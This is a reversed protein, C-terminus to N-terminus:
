ASAFARVAPSTGGSTYQLSSATNASALRNRLAPSVILVFDFAFFRLFWHWLRALPWRATRAMVPSDAFKVPWIDYGSRRAYRRFSFASNFNHDSVCFDSGRRFAKEAVLRRWRNPLAAILPLGYIPDRRITKLTVGTEVLAIGGPKLVRRIEAFFADLDEVFELVEMTMVVDFTGDAFPWRTMGDCRVFRLRQRADLQAPLQAYAFDFKDTGVCDAGRAWLAVLDGAHATGIELVRKGALPGIIQELEDAIKLGREFVQRVWRRTGSQQTAADLARHFRRRVEGIHDTNAHM